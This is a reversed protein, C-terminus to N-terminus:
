GCRTTRIWGRDRALAEVFGYFPAILALPDTLKHGTDVFPLTNATTKGDGTVFVTAGEGVLRDATEIVTAQAADRSALALVPFGSGVLSVPGHLVEAASFAEAHQGCTEKLKLAAEDAIALAPGRGLIFLSPQGRLDVALPSWDLRVAASLQDPLNRLATELQRDRVWAAVVMLGAVISNVFTKTAAVARETGARIDIARDSGVALPSGIVNTLAVTTAGGERASQQMAVIDPSRGSQSVALCLARDLRLRAGYISAVSPGISAVARGASLEIAYKLFAAAHDSSGRAVTIVLPPDLRNLTAGIDAAEAAFGDILRAAAEPIEDIECRMHTRASDEGTM